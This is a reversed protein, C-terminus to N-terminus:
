SAMSPLGCKFLASVKVYERTRFITGTYGNLAVWGFSFSVLVRGMSAPVFFRVLTAMPFLGFEAFPFLCGGWVQPYSLRVRLVTSCGVGGFTFM